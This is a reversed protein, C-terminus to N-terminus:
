CRSDRVAGARRCIRPSRPARRFAGCYLLLAALYFPASLTNKLETM